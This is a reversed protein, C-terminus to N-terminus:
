RRVRPDILVAAIVATMGNRCLTPAAVVFEEREVWEVALVGPMERLGDDLRLPARDHYHGRATDGVWLSWHFAGGTAHRTAPLLPDAKLDGSDLLEAVTMAPLGPHAAPVVVTLLQELHITCTCRGREPPTWDDVM